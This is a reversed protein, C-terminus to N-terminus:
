AAETDDLINQLVPYYNEGLLTNTDRMLRNVAHEEETRVCMMRVLFESVEQVFTRLFVYRGEYNQGEWEELRTTYVRLTNVHPGDYTRLYQHIRDCHTSLVKKVGPRTIGTATLPISVYLESFDGIIPYLLNFIRNMDCVKKVLPDKELDKIDRHAKVYNEYIREADAM